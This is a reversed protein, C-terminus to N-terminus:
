DPADRVRVLTVALGALAACLWLSQWNALGENPVVYGVSLALLVAAALEAAGRRGQGPAAILSLTLLPVVAATFPAFPLDKYRPNFVLGLAVHVALLLTLILVAGVAIALPNRLRQGAPGILRSLRPLPMARVAAMSMLLPSALAVATLALSRSWGDAGLSELPVNEITWGILIGGALGNAAVALWVTSPVAEKRRAALAAAFILV